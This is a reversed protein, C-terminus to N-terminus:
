WLLCEKHKVCYMYFTYREPQGTVLAPVAKASVSLLFADIAIVYLYVCFCLHCYAFETVLSLWPECGTGKGYSSEDKTIQFCFLIAQSISSICIIITKFIIM